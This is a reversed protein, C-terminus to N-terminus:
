GSIHEIFKQVKGLMVKALPPKVVVANAPCVEQCCFCEICRKKDIILKGHSDVICDAPCGKVCEFCRICKETDIYPVFSVVTDIAKSLIASPIVSELFLKGANSPKKFGACRCADTREGIVRIRRLDGVGLGREHARRITLVEQEAFGLLHAMVADLSVADDSAGILGAQYPEGASPGAGQMAVVGDMVAFHPRVFTYVDCLADAMRKSTPAQVHVDRKMKGPICGLMNKLAGTYGVLEHTKLKAVSVIFDFGRLRKPVLVETIIRNGPNKLPVTEEADVNFLEFGAEAALVDLGMNRFAKNTSGKSFSSTSDGVAVRCGYDEKFIKALARVVAPHTNVPRDPGKSPSLLNIKLLVKAGPTPTRVDSLFPVVAKRVADHV